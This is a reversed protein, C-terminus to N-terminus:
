DELTLTDVGNGCGNNFRAVVEIAEAASKGCAMAVLASEDGSGWACFEGECRFPSPGSEYRWATGDARILMLSAVSDKCRNIAPFSEPKAGARYWDLLEAGVSIDGSFGLLERGFRFIKTTTKVTDGACMRKDAALTKGDWAIVTM